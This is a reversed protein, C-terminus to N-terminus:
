ILSSIFYDTIEHRTSNDKYRKIKYGSEKLTHAFSSFGEPQYGKSYSGDPMHSFLLTPIEYESILEAIEESEEPELYDPINSLFFLDVKYKDLVKSLRDTNKLDLLFPARKTSDLIQQNYEQIQRQNNDFSIVSAKEFEDSFFVPWPYGGVPSLICNPTINNQKLIDSIYKSNETESEYYSYEEM